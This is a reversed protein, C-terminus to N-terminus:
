ALKQLLVEVMLPLHNGDISKDTAIRLMCKVADKQEGFDIGRDLLWKKYEAIRIDSKIWYPMVYNIRINQEHGSRRVTRM